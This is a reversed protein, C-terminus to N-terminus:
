WVILRSKSHDYLLPSQSVSHSFSFISTVVTNEVRDFLSIKMKAVNLKNVAFARLKTVDLIKDNPLPGRKSPDHVM